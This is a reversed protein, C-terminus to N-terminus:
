RKKVWEVFTQGKPKDIKLKNKWNQGKRGDILRSEGPNAFIGYKWKKILPEMYPQNYRFQKEPNFDDKMRKVADKVFAKKILIPNLGFQEQWRDALYFGDENYRWNCRFVRRMMNGKPTKDKYLRLSSLDKYKNLIFIMKDVDIPRLINVDDEWHFIYEATTNSWVWKVAKPFSPVTPINFVVNPFINKATKVVKMPEVDEGIPDVNLILTYRELEKKCVHKVITNLTEKLLKPRLVATMAIDIKEM